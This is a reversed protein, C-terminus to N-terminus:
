VITGAYCENVFASTPFAKWGSEIGGSSEPRAKWRSRCRRKKLTEYEYFCFSWRKRFLSLSITVVRIVAKSLFLLSALFSRKPFPLIEFPPRNKKTLVATRFHYSLFNPSFSYSLSPPLPTRETSLSPSPVPALVSVLLLFVSPIIAKISWGSLEILM